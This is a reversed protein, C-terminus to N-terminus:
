LPIPDVINNANDDYEFEYRYIYIPKLVQLIFIPTKQSPYAAIFPLFLCRLFTAVHFIITVDIKSFFIQIM